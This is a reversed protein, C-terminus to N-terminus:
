QVKQLIVANRKLNSTVLTEVFRYANDPRMKKEQLSKDIAIYLKELEVESASCTEPWHKLVNCLNEYFGIEPICKLKWSILEKKAFKVQYYVKALLNVDLGYHSLEKPLM